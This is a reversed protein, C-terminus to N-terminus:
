QETEEGFTPDTLDGCTYVALVCNCNMSEVAQLDTSLYTGKDMSFSRVQIDPHSAAIDNLFAQVNQESGQMTITVTTTNMYQVLVNSTDPTTDSTDTDNGAAEAEAAKAEVSNDTESASTTEAAEVQAQAAQGEASLVYAEPVGAVPDAINLYVPFLDHDLILGTILEDVAQNELLGHYDSSVDKLTSKQEEIKAEVTSANDITRQMMEQQMTLEEHQTALDEHKEIGPFILFRIMFFAIVVCALVKLLVVDGPKLEMDIKM